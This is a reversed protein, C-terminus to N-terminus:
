GHHLEAMRRLLGTEMKAIVKRQDREDDSLAIFQKQVADQLQGLDTGGIARRVSVLVDTGTKVMVGDDVAVFAEGGDHTEYTFIGPLLAAVCDLRHPLIGYSGAVTEAVIRSVGVIDAFVEFPLLVKLHMLSSM